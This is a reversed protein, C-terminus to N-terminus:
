LLSGLEDPLPGGEVLVVDEVAHDAVEPLLAIDPDANDGALGIASNAPVIRIPPLDADGLYAFRFDARITTAFKEISFGCLTGIGIRNPIKSM